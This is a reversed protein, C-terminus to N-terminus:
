REERKQERELVRFLEPRMFRGSWIGRKAKQAEAEDAAFDKLYRTYAVAQGRRVMERNVNLEGAHCISVERKYRDTKRRVCEVGDKVLAALTEKSKRGCDYLRNQADFCKQNYEPADIGELRIDRGDILLSDGDVAIVEARVAMSWCLAPLLAMIKKM